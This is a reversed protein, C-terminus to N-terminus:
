QNLFEKISEKDIFGVSRDVEEGNQILVLTPISQIGYKNALNEEDDINIRVFLLDENTNEDAIEEIIPSLKKCPPCWDAYFDVFVTKGSNLVVEEFNNSTGQMIKESEVSKDHNTFNKNNDIIQANDNQGINNVTQSGYKSEEKYDINNLFINVFFLASIFIILGLGWLIKKKM